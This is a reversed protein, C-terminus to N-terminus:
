VTFCLALDSVEDSGCHDGKRFRASALLEDGANSSPEIVVQGSVLVSHGQLVRRERKRRLFGM